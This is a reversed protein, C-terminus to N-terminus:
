PTRPAPHPPAVYGGYYSNADINLVKKGEAGFVSSVGNAVGCLQDLHIRVWLPHVRHTRSSAADTQLSSLPAPLERSVPESLWSTTSKM